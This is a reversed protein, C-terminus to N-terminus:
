CESEELELIQELLGRVCGGSIRDALHRIMQRSADEQDIAPRYVYTKEEVHHTLYGKRELIRLITRITSNAPRQASCFVEQISQATAQGQQWVIDMMELEAETLVRPRRRDM